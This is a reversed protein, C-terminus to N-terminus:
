EIETLNSFTIKWRAFLVRCSKHPIFYSITITITIRKYNFIVIINSKCNAHNKALLDSRRKVQSAETGAWQSYVTIALINLIIYRATHLQFYETAYAMEQEYACTGAVM